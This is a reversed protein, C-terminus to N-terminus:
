SELLEVGASGNVLRIEGNRFGLHALIQKLRSAQKQISFWRNAIVLNRSLIRNKVAEDLKSWSLVNELPDPDWEIFRLGTDCIESLVLYKRVVLPKCFAVSELVPNGFGEWRSPFVVLDAAEYALDIPLKGMGLMLRFSGSSKQNQEGSSVGRALEALAHDYEDEPPGCVLLVVEKGLEAALRHGLSISEPVGKREIARTPQVLLLCSRPIGLRLRAQEKKAELEHGVALMDPFEFANYMLFSEFGREKLEAKSLRNISVHVAREIRPPFNAQILRSLPGQLRELRFEPRQWILDHHRLIAPINRSVLSRRLAEAYGPNLPLGFVNEVVVLDPSFTELVKEIFVGAKRSHELITELCLSGNEGKWLGLKKLGAAHNISLMPDEFTVIHSSEIEAASKPRSFLSVTAPATHGTAQGFEGAM